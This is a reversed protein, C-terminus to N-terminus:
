SANARKNSWWVYALILIGAIAMEDFAPQPSAGHDNKSSSRSADAAGSKDAATNSAKPTEGRSIRGSVVEDELQLLERYVVEWQEFPIEEDHLAGKLEEIKELRAATDSRSNQPSKKWERWLDTIRDEFKQSAEEWTLYAETFPVRQTIIARANLATTKPGALVMDTPHVVISLGNDSRLMKAEPTVLGQVISKALLSMVMVPPKLYIPLETERVEVGNSNLAQSLDSMVTKYGGKKITIPVHETKLRKLYTISLTIVSTIMMLVMAIAFGPAILWGKIVQQVKGGLTPPPESDVFLSALGIIFPLVLVFITSFHQIIDKVRPNELGKNLLFLFQIVEPFIIGLVFVIWLMSMLGIGALLYQRKPPMKGFFGVMAWSFLFAAIRGLSNLVATTAAAILAAM